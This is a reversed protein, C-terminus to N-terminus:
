TRGAACTELRHFDPIQGTAPLIYGFALTDTTLRFRFSAPPLGRAQRVSVTYYAIAQSLAAICTLTWYSCPALPPLYPLYISPFFRTTGPSTQVFRESLLLRSWSAVSLTCFDASAMTASLHLASDTPTGLVVPFPPIAPIASFRSSFPQGCFSLASCSSYAPAGLDNRRIHFSRSLHVFFSQYM